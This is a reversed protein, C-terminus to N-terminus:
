SRMWGGSYLKAIRLTLPFFTAAPGLKAAMGRGEEEDLDCIVVMAGENLFKKATARGIGTAGGTILCVKDDLRKLESM